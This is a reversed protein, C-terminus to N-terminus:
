STIYFSYLFIFYNINWSNFPYKISKNVVFYLKDAVLEVTEGAITNIYTKKNNSTITINKHVEIKNVYVGEKITLVDNSYELINSYDSIVSDNLANKVVVTSNDNITISYEDLAYVKGMFLFSLSLILLCKLVSKM